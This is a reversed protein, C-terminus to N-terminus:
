TAIGLTRIPFRKHTGKWINRSNFANLDKNLPKLTDVYIFKAKGYTKGRPGTVSHANSESM